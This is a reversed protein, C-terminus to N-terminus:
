VHARGIKSLLTGILLYETKAEPRNSENYRLLTKATLLLGIVEYKGALVLVFVISRELIGIWMGAKALTIDSNGQRVLEDRWKATMFEILMGAPFTVAVLGTFILWINRDNLLLEITHLDYTVGTYVTWTILLIVLHALQDALFWGTNRPLYSKAGDLAVHGLAIVLGAFWLVPGCLALITLFTIAAHLYLKVSAYHRENRDEVWAKPQFFFDSLFHAAVLKILLLYPM